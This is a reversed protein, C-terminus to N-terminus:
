SGVSQSLQLVPLLVSLTVLLVFGGIVVILIPELFSLCRAIFRDWRAEYRKAASDLLNALGGSAEGIRIWGPLSEALPPIRAVADSLRGGHRVTEAEEATIRAVWPSGTARGALVLGDILVVGGRLLVSLTKCFRLSTLMAYGSGFLPLSFARRDLNERFGSDRRYRLVCWAGVMVAALLLLLGWSALFQGLGMMFTTLGPMAVNSRVLLDRTKPVLLGLMVVAVCIGVGVVISPYILASQIRGRLDEQEELFDALRGLMPSVTGSEEATELIACEFTSVSDSANRLAEALSMGDKVRDRAGAMLLRSDSMEPADILLDLARVLTLGAELLAALERYVVARLSAPFRTSKGTLVVREALIGEASLKARANKVSDAEVIGKCAGGRVDFGKYQYTSM